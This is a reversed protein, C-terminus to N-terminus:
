APVEEKPFRGAKALALQTSRIRLLQEVTLEYEDVLLGLDEEALSRLDDFDSAKPLTPEPSSPPATHAAPATEVQPQPVPTVSTAVENLTAQFVSQNQIESTRQNRQQQRQLTDLKQEEKIHVFSSFDRQKATQQSAQAASSAMSYGAVKNQLMRLKHNAHSSIRAKEQEMWRLMDDASDFKSTLQYARKSYRGAFGYVIGLWLAILQIAIYIVSLVVFTVLSARHEADIKDQIALGSAAANVEGSEIPLDFPSNAKTQNGVTITMEAVLETELANLQETRIWFAAVAIFVIVGVFLAIWKYRPTVDTNTPIRALIQNYLTAQNDEYTRDITLPKVKGIQQDRTTADDGTWWHRAKKVLSNHHIQHGAIHALFGSILALFSAVSWTLLQLDNASIERNIFPGLVYAFGVAELILLFASLPVVWFPSSSRGSEGVKALYDECKRFYEPDKDVDTFYTYYHECLAKESSLWGDKDVTHDVRAKGAYRAVSGIFPLGHWFRMVMYRVKDWNLALILLTSLAGFIGMTLLRNALLQETLQNFTSLEEM